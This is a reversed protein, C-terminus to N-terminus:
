MLVESLPITALQGNTGFCNGINGENSHHFQNEIFDLNGGTSVNNTSFLMKDFNFMHIDNKYDVDNNELGVKGGIFYLVGNNNYIGSGYFKLNINKPNSISVKEWKSSGLKNINIREVSDLIDFQTHGMFAYLYDKYIVLMARQREESNLNPMSGWKLTKLNFYECKNSNYGGVVFIYNDNAIMSHNWHSYLMNPMKKLIIRDYDKQISLRLFIKGIGNQREQGGTFYLINNYNCFAGGQPFENLKIDKDTFAQTFDVHVRVSSENEFVGVIQNSNFIPSMFKITYNDQNGLLSNYEVSETKTVKKFEGNEGYIHETHTEKIIMNKNQNKENFEQENKSIENNLVQILNGGFVNSSSPVQQRESQQNTTTYQTMTYGQSFNTANAKSNNNITANANQGLLNNSTTTTTVTKTTETKTINKQGQLENTNVLTGLDMDHIKYDQKSFQTIQGPYSTETTKYFTTEKQINNMNNGTDLNLNTESITLNGKTKSNINNNFISKMQSGGSTVNMVNGGVNNINTKVKEEIVEKRGVVGFNGGMNNVNTLNMLTNVDNKEAISSLDRKKSQKDQKDWTLTTYNNQAQDKTNSLSNYGTINQSVQGQRQESYIPRQFPNKEQNQNSLDKDPTYENRGFKKYSYINGLSMRNLSKRPVGINRFMLDNVQEKQIQEVINDQISNRFSEYIGKNLYTDFTKKIEESIKEVQKIFPALLTNLKEYKQKNEEFYEKKFKEIEKLKYYLSLFIQDDIIIGKTNIDNKLKIFFEICYRKLLELNENTNRETEEESTSFFELCSSFKMELDNILKRLNDFINTKLNSRFTVCDLYKSLRSDAMFLSSDSFINNMLLKAPALYDAKEEIRHNKHDQQLCDTCISQSCTFCYLMKYKGIHNKCPVNINFCVSVLEDEIEYLDNNSIIRLPVPDLDAFMEKITMDDYDNTYEKDTNGHFIQFCNKLLHAAGVLIKKFEHFTTTEDVDISYSKEGNESVITTIIKKINVNDEEM